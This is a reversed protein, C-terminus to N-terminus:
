EVLFGHRRFIARGEPGLILALFARPRPGDQGAVIAIPYAITPHSDAPFEAIIQVEPAIAADTAYVVGLPAEGRAVLALAARVNDALALRDAVTEWLGLHELAARTYIGAPVHAPDGIVLRGDSGLLSAISEATLAIAEAGAPAILVLRNGAANARTEPLILEREALYDTWEVSALTIIDAPAGAEIQRALTSSAAFSFRVPSPYSAAIETLVDGLSAAGFVTLPESRVQTVSLFVLIALMTTRYVM